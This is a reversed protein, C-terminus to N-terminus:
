NGGLIARGGRWASFTGDLTIGDTFANATVLNGGTTVTDINAVELYNVTVELSWAQSKGYSM